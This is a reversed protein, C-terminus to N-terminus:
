ARIQFACFSGAVVGITLMILVPAALGSWRAGVVLPFALRRDGEPERIRVFVLYKGRGLDAQVNAIGSRYRRAPIVLRFPGGKQSVELSLLTNPLDDGMLDFVLLARGEQPLADCYEAFPNFKPQYVALHIFDDAGIRQICPDYTLGPGGGHAEVVRAVLCFGIGLIAGLVLKVGADATRRSNNRRKVGISM